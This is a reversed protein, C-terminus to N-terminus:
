PSSYVINVTGSCVGAATTVVVAHTGAAKAPAVFSCTTKTLMKIGTAATGGVTVGQVRYFETGTVVHTTTGAAPATAASVASQTGAKAAGCLASCLEPRLIGAGGMISAVTFNTGRRVDKISEVKMGQLRLSCVAQRQWILAKVDNTYWAFDYKADGIQSEVTASQTGVAGAVVNKLQLHNTKIIKAGFYELTDQINTMGNALGTGLGGVAANGVFMPTNGGAYMDGRSRAIGLMRISHFTRPNVAVYVDRTDVNVEQLHVMYEEIYSLLKLAAASQDTETGFGLDNFAADPPLIAGQGGFSCGALGTGYPSRNATFAAQGIMCALQKDRANALQLGSQRAIESRYDWQTLMLHIDDLEFHSAMPRQDLSIDFWGPSNTSGSDQTLEEGANWIPKIGVTGTIPFRKTTGSTITDSQVLNEFMNYESYANLVEGSWIPLWYNPDGSANSTPISTVSAASGGDPWLNTGTGVPYINDLSGVGTAM